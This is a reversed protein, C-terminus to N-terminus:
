PTIDVTIVLQYNDEDVYCGFGKKTLTECFPELQRIENGQFGCLETCNLDKDRLFQQFAPFMKDVTEGFSMLYGMPVDFEFTCFDKSIKQLSVGLQTVSSMLAWSGENYLDTLQQHVQSIFLDTNKDFIEEKHSNYERILTLLNTANM